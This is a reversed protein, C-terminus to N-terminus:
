LLIMFVPNIDQYKVSLEMYQLEGKEPKTPLKSLSSSNEGMIVEYVYINQSNDESEKNKSGDTQNRM